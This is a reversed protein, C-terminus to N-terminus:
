MRINQFERQSTPAPYRQGAGQPVTRRQPTYTVKKATTGETVARYVSQVLMPTASVSVAEGMNGYRPQWAQVALGLLVAGLRGLDSWTKFAETRAPVANADWDQVLRDALGVGGAVIYKSVDIAAM